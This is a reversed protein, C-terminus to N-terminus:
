ELTRKFFEATAATLQEFATQDDTFINFTHDAGPILLVESPPAYDHLTDAHEAPVVDDADGNILLIPVRISGVIKEMDLADMQDIWSQGTNMPDRWDYETVFFGNEAAEERQDPSAQMAASPAAWTVVSEISPDSAALNLAHIGGQSWGLVGVRDSIATDTALYNMIAQADSVANDPAFDADDATSDGAGMFDFRASAIGAQALTQAMRVYGDGAEDKQSGTGHMMIVLPVPSTAEPVVLTTPIEHDGAEIFITEETFSPAEVASQPPEPVTEVM